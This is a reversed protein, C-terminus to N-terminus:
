EVTKELQSVLPILVLNEITTHRALDEELRFIDYLLDPREGPCCSAPLYKLLINKLDNLKEEINTHNEEFRAISYGKVRHGELLGKIYPFVENEEYEFHNELETRYGEFFKHLMKGYLPDCSRGIIDLRAAMSPIQRTRFYEHSQHLYDVIGSIDTSKLCAADPIYGERSHVSCILMFLSVPIGSEACAESVRKEGFGLGIGMRELVPILRYDELVLDALKMRGTEDFPSQTPATGDQGTRVPETTDKM